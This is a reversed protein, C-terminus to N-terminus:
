SLDFLDLLVRRPPIGARCIPFDERFVSIFTAKRPRQKGCHDDWRRFFLRLVFLREFNRLVPRVAAGSTLGSMSSPFPPLCFPPPLKIM